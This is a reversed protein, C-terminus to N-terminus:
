LARLAMVTFDDFPEATAQFARVEAELRNCFEQAPLDANAQIFADVRPQGFPEGDPNLADTVGDTIFVLLSGPDLKMSEKQIQLGPMIGLFCGGAEIKQLHGDPHRLIPFVHGANCLTLRRTEPEFYSLVMSVFMNSMTEEHLSDNLRQTVAVIGDLPISRGEIRVASRVSALLIASPVGKGSVDAIALILDGQPLQVIDFYDGGVMRAPESLGGFEFGPVQPMTRPLLNMQISRAIELDRQRERKALIQRHLNAVAVGLAAQNAVGLAWELDSDNYRKGSERSDLYLVGLVEGKAVLPACIASQIRERAISDSKKFRKDKKADAMVVAVRHEMAQQVISTSIVLDDTAGEPRHIVKPVLARTEPDVLLICANTPQLVQCVTLSVQDLLEDLDLMSQILKGVEYISKLRADAEPPVARISGTSPESDDLPFEIIHSTELGTEGALLRVGTTRSEDSVEGSASRDAEFLISTDGMTIKDGSVLRVRVAIPRDNVLTGNKSQLDRLTWNGEHVELQVHVRSIRSDIIQIANEPGRGITLVQSGRLPYVLGKLDGSEVILRFPVVPPDPNVSLITPYQPSSAM